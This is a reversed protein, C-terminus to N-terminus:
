EWEHVTPRIVKSLRDHRGSNTTTSGHFSLKPSEEVSPLESFHDSSKKSDIPSTQYTRENIGSTHNRTRKVRSRSRMNKGMSTLIEPLSHKKIIPKSAPTANIPASLPRKSYEDQSCNNRTRRREKKYGKPAEENPPINGFSGRLMNSSPFMTDKRKPRKSKRRESVEGVKSYIPGVQVRKNPTHQMTVNSVNGQLSNKGEMYEISFSSERIRFQSGIDTIDEDTSQSAYASSLRQVMQKLSQLALNIRVFEPAAKENDMKAEMMEQVAEKTPFGKLIKRIEENDLNSGSSPIAGLSDFDDDLNIQNEIFQSRLAKIETKDAKNERLTQCMKNLTNTVSRFDEEDKNVSDLASQLHNVIERFQDDLCSQVDRKSVKNSLEVTHGNLTTRMFEQDSKISVLDVNSQEEKWSMLSSLDEGVKSQIVAQTAVHDEIKMEIKKSNEDQVYAHQEQQAIIDVLLDEKGTKAVPPPAVGMEDEVSHTVQRSSIVITKPLLNVKSRVNSIDQATQTAQKRVDCKFEDFASAQEQLQMEHRDICSEHLKVVGDIEDLLPIKDALVNEIDDVKRTYGECYEVKEELVSIQEKMKEFDRLREQLLLIVQNQASLARVITDTDVYNPKPKGKLEEGIGLLFTNIDPGLVIAM